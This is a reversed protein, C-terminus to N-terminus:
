VIKECFNHKENSTGSRNIRYVDDDDHYLLLKVITTNKQKKKSGWALSRYAFSRCKVSINNGM